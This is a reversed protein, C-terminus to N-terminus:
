TDIKCNKAHEIQSHLHRITEDRVSIITAQSDNEEIKIKLLTSLSKVLEELRIRNLADLEIELLTLDEVIDQLNPNEKATLIRERIRQEIDEAM